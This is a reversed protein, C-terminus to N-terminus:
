AAQRTAPAFWAAFIQVAEPQWGDRRFADQKELSREILRSADGFSEVETEIELEGNARTVVLEYAGASPHRIEYKAVESERSFFWVM